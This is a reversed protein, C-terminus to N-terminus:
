WSVLHQVRLNTFGVVQSLEEEIWGDEQGGKEPLQAGEERLQWFGPPPAKNVM